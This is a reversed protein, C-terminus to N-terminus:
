REHPGRKSTSFPKVCSLFHHKLCPTPKIGLFPQIEILSSEWAEVSPAMEPLFVQANPHAQSMADWAPHPEDPEVDPWDGWPIVVLGPRPPAQRRELAELRRLIARSM